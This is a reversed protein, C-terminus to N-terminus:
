TKRHNLLRSRQIDDTAARVAAGALAYGADIIATDAQPMIGYLTFEQTHHAASQVDYGIMPHISPVALSVNGMDTSAVPTSDIVPHRGRESLATAYATTLFPDQRLETFTNGREQIQLECGSALAGAELCNRIKQNILKLQEISPARMEIRMTSEDPIVNVSEGAQLVILSIISKLPLQQRTLAIAHQAISAADLANTGLEPAAAAHAAKGRYTIDWANLALSSNGVTDQGSAHVMMALHSTSFFGENLLDVKGGHSEEAPTGLVHVTIDLESCIESLALAAAVSSGANVNHGCAHGINPLADYEVCFTVVLQGTGKRMSFATPASPQQRDLVFGHRRLVNITSKHAFYEQGSLEPRGHIQHSLTIVEGRRDLLSADILKMLGSLELTQTM